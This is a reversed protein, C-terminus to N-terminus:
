PRPPAQASGCRWSRTWRGNSRLADIMGASVKKLRCSYERAGHREHASSISKDSFPQPEFNALDLNGDRIQRRREVAQAKRLQAINVDARVHRDSLNTAGHAHRVLQMAIKGHNGSVEECPFGIRQFIADGLERSQASRQANPSAVPIM